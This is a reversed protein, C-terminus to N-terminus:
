AVIAFEETPVDTIAVQVASRATTNRAYTRTRSLVQVAIIDVVDAIAFTGALALGRNAVAIFGITDRALATFATDDGSALENHITFSGPQGGFDGPVTKNFKSSMDAGDATSGDFPLDLDGILAETIDLGANLETATPAAIDSITTIFHVEVTGEPVYRTM